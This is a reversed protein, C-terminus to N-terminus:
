FVQEGKWQISSRSQQTTGTFDFSGDQNWVYDGTIDEHKDCDVDWNGMGAVDVTSIMATCIEDEIRIKIPGSPDGKRLM